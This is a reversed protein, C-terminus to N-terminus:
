GFTGSRASAVPGDPLGFTPELLTLGFSLGRDARSVLMAFDHPRV